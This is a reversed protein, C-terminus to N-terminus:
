RSRDERILATSDSYSREYSALKERIISASAAANYKDEEAASEIILLLEQQLSRKNDAAKQKLKGLVDEPINRILIDTM